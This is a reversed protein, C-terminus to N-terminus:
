WMILTLLFLITYFFYDCCFHYDICLISRKSIIGKKLFTKCEDVPLEMYVFGCKMWTKRNHTQQLTRYAERYKNHANSLELKTDKLTLIDQGLTEVETLYKITKDMSQDM